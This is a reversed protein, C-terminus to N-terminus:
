KKQIKLVLKLQTALSDLIELYLRKYTTEANETTTAVRSEKPPAYLGNVESRVEEFRDRKGQLTTVMENSIRIRYSIHFIKNQLIDSM